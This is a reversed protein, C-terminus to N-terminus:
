GDKGLLSAGVMGLAGLTWLLGVAHQQRLETKGVDSYWARAVALRGEITWEAKPTGLEPVRRLHAKLLREPTVGVLAGSLYRGAVNAGPRRSNASLVCGGNDTPTMMVLRARPGEAESRPVYGFGRHFRVGWAPGEFLTAFVGDTANAYDYMLTAAGFRPHELHSGISVFGLAKLADHTPELVAPVERLEGPDEILLRMSDPKLVLFGRWVNLRLMVVGLVFALVAFVPSGLDLM